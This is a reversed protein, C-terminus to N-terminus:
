ILEEWRATELGLRRFAGTEFGPGLQSIIEEDVQFRPEGREWLGFHNRIIHPTDMWVVCPAADALTLRAARGDDGVHWCSLTTDLGLSTNIAKEADLLWRTDEGHVAVEESVTFGVAELADRRILMCGMGFAACQLLDGEPILSGFQHAIENANWRVPLNPTESGRNSYLGSVFLLDHALLRPISDAPCIMDADHFYLHTWDGALFYQRARERVVALRCYRAEPMEGQIVNQFAGAPRASCERIEEGPNVNDYVIHVDAVGELQKVAKGLFPRTYDKGPGLSTALLVKPEM